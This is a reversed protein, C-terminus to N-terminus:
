GEPTPAIEEADVVGPGGLEAINEAIDHDSVSLSEFKLYLDFRGRKVDFRVVTSLDGAQKFSESNRLKTAKSVATARTPFYAYKTWKGRRSARVVAMARADLRLVKYHRRDDPPLEDVAHLRVYNAM